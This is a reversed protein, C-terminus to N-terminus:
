IRTRSVMSKKKFVDQLHQNQLCNNRMILDLLGKDGILQHSHKLRQSWVEPLFNTCIEVFFSVRIAKVPTSMTHLRAPFQNRLCQDQCTLQWLNVYTDTFVDNRYVFTQRCSTSSLNACNKVFSTNWLVLICLSFGKQFHNEKHEM